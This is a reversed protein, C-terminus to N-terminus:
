LAGFSFHILINILAMIVSFAIAWLFSDVSFGPVIKAVLLVLLGNIVFTLLGLSLINIPLTLILIIPRIFSNVIGLFIAAVLAALLGEVHVGPLVYGAAFVALTSILINTIEMRIFNVKLFAKSLKLM